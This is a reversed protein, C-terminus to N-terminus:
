ATSPRPTAAQVVCRWFGDDFQSVAAAAPSGADGHRAVVVQRAPWIYLRKDGAGLAAILDTPGSPILPRDLSVGGFSKRPDVDQSGRGPTVARPAGPLWWLYGYAPNMTQSPRLSAALYGGEPARELGPWRGGALVALGFRAMDLASSHLGSLVWGNPDKMAPRPRWSSDGMGLPGFLLDAFIRETPAGTAAEMARRVQHYANNNYYWVAGPEAEVTFDDYLGSCMSMLHRLEIRDEDSADARTWGRGLWRSVPDHISLVGEAQLIGMVFSVFSKQASAIDGADHRDVGRWQEDVMLRGRWLIVLQTSNREACYDVLAALGPENWGAEAPTATPWRDGGSPFHLESLARVM